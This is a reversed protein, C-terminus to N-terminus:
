LIKYKRQGFRMEKKEEIELLNMHFEEIQLLNLLSEEKM